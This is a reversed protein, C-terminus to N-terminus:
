SARPHLHWRPPEKGAGVDIRIRCAGHRAVIEAAVRKVAELMELLLAPEAELLSAGDSTTEVVVEGPADPQALRIARVRGAEFLVQGEVPDTALDSVSLLPPPDRQLSGILSARM